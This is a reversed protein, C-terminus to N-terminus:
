RRYELIEHPIRDYASSIHCSPDICGSVHVMSKKRLRISGRHDIIGTTLGTIFACVILAIVVAFLRIMMAKVPPIAGRKTLHIFPEKGKSNM